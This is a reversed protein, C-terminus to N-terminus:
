YLGALVLESKPAADPAAAPAPEPQETAAALADDAAAEARDAVDGTTVGYTVAPLEDAWAVPQEELPAMDAAAVPLEWVVADYDLDPRYGGFVNLDEPGAEYLQQGSYAINLQMGTTRWWPAPADKMKPNAAAGLLAGLLIGGPIIALAWKGAALM